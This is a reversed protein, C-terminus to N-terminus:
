ATESWEYFSSRLTDGWRTSTFRRTGCRRVSQLGALANTLFLEEAQHLDASSFLQEHVSIGAAPALEEMILGRVTGAVGCDTIPPTILVGDFAAFVNAAVACIVEGRDNQMLGEDAGQKELERAALVQELRNGHKIGALAPQAALCLECIVIDLAEAPERWPSTASLSLALTPPGCAGRYGREGPGRSVVVRAAADALTAAELHSRGQELQAQLASEDYDIELRQCGRQLRDLHRSLLHYRGDHYRLTEFLGDGYSFGRDALSLAADRRGNIWHAPLTM